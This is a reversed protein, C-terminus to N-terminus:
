PTLIKNLLVSYDEGHPKFMHIFPIFNNLEKDFPYTQIKSPIEFNKNYNYTIIPYEHHDLVKYDLIANTIAFIPEDVRGNQYFRKLKFDDYKTYVFRLLKFYSNFDKHNKNIYFFGGSSPYVTKQVFDQIDNICGWHWSSYNECLGYMVVAQDIDKVINWIHSPNYQCLMDTDVIITEDYPLYQDFLLRPILCYHEFNNLPENYFPHNFNYIIIKDFLDKDILDIDNESTIVSLPLDNGNKNMTMALNLLENIYEKGFALFCYGKM